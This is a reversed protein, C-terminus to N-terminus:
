GKKRAKMEEIWKPALSTPIVHIKVLGDLVETKGNSLLKLLSLKKGVKVLGGTITDMFCDIGSLRYLGEEDWPLPFIYQLHDSITELEGFKKVFDSQAHMPYLFIAPFVLSSKPSEPDPTLHVEADDLDPPKQSGRMGINRAKLASVLAIRQRQKSEKEKQEKALLDAQAARKREIQGALTKLAANTPEIDLGRTCADSAEDIKEIKFLASASRYFAKVNRPNLKLAAACDLTTSRYNGIELQCLSRNVYCTELLSQEQKAEAAKEDETQQIPEPPVGIDVKGLLVAIAKTYFERADKWSKAKAMENGQDKFGQAIELKTGEYQLARMAELEINEEADPDQVDLQDMFLPTKGMDKFTEHFTVPKDSEVNATPKNATTSGNRSAAPKPNTGNALLQELPTDVPPKNLDISTDFDDPLEEIRSSAM